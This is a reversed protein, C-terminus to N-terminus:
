VNTRLIQFAVNIIIKRRAPPWQIAERTARGSVYRYRATRKETHVCVCVCTINVRPRRRERLDSQRLVRPKKKREIKKKRRYEVTETEKNWHDLSRSSWRNSRPACERYYVRGIRINRVGRIRVQAYLDEATVSM